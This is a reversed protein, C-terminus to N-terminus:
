ILFYLINRLIMMNKKKIILLDEFHAYSLLKIFEKENGNKLYTELKNLNNGNDNNQRIDYKKDACKVDQKIDFKKDNLNIKNIKEIIGNKQEKNNKEQYKQPVDNNNTYFYNKVFM